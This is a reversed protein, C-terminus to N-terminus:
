EQVAWTHGCKECYYIKITGGFGDSRVEKLVVDESGCQPCDPMNLYDDLAAGSLEHAM